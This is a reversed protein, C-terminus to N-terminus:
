RMFRQWDVAVDTDFCVDFGRTTPGGALVCRSAAIGLLMLCVRVM